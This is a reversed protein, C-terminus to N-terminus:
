TAQSLQLFQTFQLQNESVTAERAVFFKLNWYSKVMKRLDFLGPTSGNRSIKNVNDKATIQM